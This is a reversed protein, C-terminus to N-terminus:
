LGKDEAGWATSAAGAGAGRSYSLEDGTGPLRVQVIATATNVMRTRWEGRELGRRPCLATPLPLPSRLLCVQAVVRGGGRGAGPSEPRGRHLSGATPEPVDAHSAWPGRSSEPPPPSQPYLESGERLIVRCLHSPLRRFDGADQAGTVGGQEWCVCRTGERVQTQMRAGGLAGAWPGASRAQSLTVAPDARPSASLHREKRATFAKPSPEM